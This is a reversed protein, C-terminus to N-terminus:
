RGGTATMNLSDFSKAMEMPQVELLHCQVATTHRFLRYSLLTKRGKPIQSYFCSHSLCISILGLRNILLHVNFNEINKKHKKKKNRFVIKKKLGRITYKLPSM